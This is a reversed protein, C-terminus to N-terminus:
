AKRGKKQKLASVTYLAAFLVTLAGLVGIICKMATQWWPVFDQVATERTLGNVLNSNAMAYYFNKNARRLAQM